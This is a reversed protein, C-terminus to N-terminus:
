VQGYSDYGSEQVQQMLEVNGQAVLIGQKIILVEHVSLLQPLWGYHTILLIMAHPVQQRFWVLAKAVIKLADSDLGSDIEDLLVYSPQLVLLQFMESRKREGGSLGENVGRDLFSEDFELLEAVTAIREELIVKPKNPYLFAWAEYLLIRLTVGPIEQPYQMSLFLGSQARKEPALDAINQSNLIITGATQYLPHGALAYVLSSKGSGNPGMCVYTNGSAFEFSFNSVIEKQGVSVTLNQLKLM